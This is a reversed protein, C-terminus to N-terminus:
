VCGQRHGSLFRSIIVSASQSNWLCWPIPILASSLFLPYPYLPLHHVFLLPPPLTYDVAPDGEGSFPGTQEAELKFHSPLSSYTSPLPASRSFLVYVRSMTQLLSLQFQFRSNDPEENNGFETSLLVPISNEVLSSACVRGQFRSLYLCVWDCM